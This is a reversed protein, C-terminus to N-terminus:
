KGICFKSFIAGLLDDAVFEGTIQNLKEQAQRLDDALLETAKRETYNSMAHVIVEKTEVLANVHRQRAMFVDEFLDQVGAMEKLCTVLLDTGEGTKASLFIEETQGGSKQRAPKHGTLDIKNKIIVVKHDAIINELLEPIDNNDTDNCELMVLLIDSRAAAERARRIGEQEVKSTTQRLGATDIFHLPIGDIQIEQELLDRTTGAEETVIAIDKEALYNLLTSKGVNPRGVIAVTIGENLVAGQRARTLIEELGTVFNQLQKNIDTSALFDTEEDPFDLTGELCSRTYILEDKLLNVRKSFEGELSRIASRAAHTSTSDILDAVAEAQVLDIRDNLFARETFEGPAARRAGLSLIRNVIIELVVRSGHAYIELVDEGTYSNPGSFFLMIGEDIVSKDAALIKCYHAIRAKESIDKSTLSKAIAASKNGSIRVIGLGGRGSPTAIAVITDDTGAM